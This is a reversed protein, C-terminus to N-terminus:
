SISTRTPHVGSLFLYPCTVVSVLHVRPKLYTAVVWGADNSSNLMLSMNSVIPDVGIDIYREVSINYIINPILDYFVVSTNTGSYAVYSSTNTFWDSLRLVYPAYVRTSTVNIPSWCVHMSTSNMQNAQIATGSSLSCNTQTAPKPPPGVPGGGNVVVMYYVILGGLALNVFLSVGSITYWLRSFPDRCTHRRNERALKSESGSSAVFAATNSQQGDASRMLPDTLQTSSNEVGQEDDVAAYTRISYADDRDGM